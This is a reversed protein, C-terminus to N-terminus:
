LKVAKIEKIISICKECTVRGNRTQFEAQSEGLGGFVHGECLTRPTDGWTAVYHWKSSGYPEGDDDTIMKVVYEM